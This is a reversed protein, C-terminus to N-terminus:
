PTKKIDSPLKSCRGKHGPCISLQIWKVVSWRSLDFLLAIKSSNWGELLLLIAAIKLGIWTGPISEAMRLLSEQTVTENTITLAKM